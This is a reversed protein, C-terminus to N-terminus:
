PKILGTVVAKVAAETRTKARLKVRANNLHFDVTRKSLGLKGAIQASTEGRSVFTLAQIERLKLKM